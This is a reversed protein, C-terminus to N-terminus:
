RVLQPRLSVTRDKVLVQFRVARCGHRDLLSEESNRLKTRFGDYSLNEVSEGLQAKSAVFEQYVSRYHSEDFPTPAADESPAPPTAAKMRPVSPNRWPNRDPAEGSAQVPGGAPASGPSGVPGFTSSARRTPPPFSRSGAAGTPMPVDKPMPLNPDYSAGSPPNSFAHPDAAGMRQADARQAAKIEPPVPGKPTPLDTKQQPGQGQSPPAAFAAKAIADFPTPERFNGGPQPPAFPAAGGQDDFLLRDDLPEGGSPREPPAQHAPVTTQSYVEPDDDAMAVLDASGPGLGTPLSMPEIRDSAARELQESLVELDSDAALDGTGDHGFPGPGGAATAALDDHSDVLAASEIQPDFVDPAPGGGFPLDVSSRESSYSTDIPLSSSVAGHSGMVDDPIDVLRSGDYEFSEVVQAPPSADLTTSPSANAFNLKFDPSASASDAPIDASADAPAGTPEWPVDATTAVRPVAARAERVTARAPAPALVRRRLEVSVLVILLTAGALLLIVFRFRETASPVGPAILSALAVVAMPAGGDNALSVREGRYLEGSLELTGDLSGTAVADTIERAVTGFIPQDALQIAIAVGPPLDQLLARQHEARLSLAMVLAGRARDDDRTVPAAAVMKPEQDIAQVIVATRGQLAAKAALSAALSDAGAAAVIPRGDADLLTAQGETGAIRLAGELARQLGRDRARSDFSAGLSKFSPTSAMTTVVSRMAERSQNWLDATRLAAVSAEARAARGQQASEVPAMLRGAMLYTAIFLAPLGLALQLSIGWRM